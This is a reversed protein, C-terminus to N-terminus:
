SISMSHDQSGWANLSVSVYILDGGVPWRCTINNIYGGYLYVTGSRWASYTYDGRTYTGYASVTYYGPVLYLDSSGSFSTSGLSQVSSWAGTTLNYTGAYGQGSITYSSVSITGSDTYTSVSGTRAFVHNLTVSPTTSSTSVRGVIVDTAWDAWVTTNSGVSLSANSVYYNYTTPSYTQFKGTYIKSSSVSYSAGAWKVSESGSGTTAGWYLSGPVSTVASTKTRIDLSDSEFSLVIEEGSEEQANFSSKQCAFAASLLLIYFFLKRM